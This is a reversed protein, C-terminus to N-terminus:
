KKEAPKEAPAQTKEIKATERLAKIYEGQAKGALGASIRDKVQEFAPVPKNRRDEVKIVHFGFQSKVPGVVDGVKAGFAAEAFEPVMRDKTFYGLDGGEAGSGPDKSAEKAIKAFDEGGKIRALLKKAADENEVLVHRARVEEVPKIQKVQEDYFAKMKAESVGEKAVKAMLEQMLVRDRVYALRRKFADGQDLKETKAKQASVRMEILFDLTIEQLQKPDLNPYEATVDPLAIEVDKETITEGNVKAVVKDQALAATSALALAALAAFALPRVTALPHLVPRSM